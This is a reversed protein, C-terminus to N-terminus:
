GAAYNESNPAASSREKNPPGAIRFTGQCGGVSGPLFDCSGGGGQFLMLVALWGLGVRTRSSSASVKSMAAQPLM